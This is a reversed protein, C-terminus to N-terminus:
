LQEGAPASVVVAAGRVITDAPHLIVEDGLRAEPDDAAVLHPKRQGLESLMGGLEGDVNLIRQGCTAQRSQEPM